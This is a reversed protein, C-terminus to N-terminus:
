IPFAKRAKALRTAEQLNKVKEKTMKRMHEEREIRPRGRGRAM